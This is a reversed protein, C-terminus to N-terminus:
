KFPRATGITCNSSDLGCVDNFDFESVNNQLKNFKENKLVELDLTDKVNIETLYQNENVSPIDSQKNLFLFMEQRYLIISAGSLILILVLIILIFNYNNKM